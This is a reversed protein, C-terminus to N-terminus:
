YLLVSPYNCYKFGIQVHLVSITKPPYLLSSIGALISLTVIDGLAAAIPTAVNDPNIHLQRSHIVILCM